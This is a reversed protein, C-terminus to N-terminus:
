KRKRRKGKPSDNRLHAQHLQIRTSLAGSLAHKPDQQRLLALARKLQHICKTIQRRKQSALQKSTPAFYAHTHLRETLLLLKWSPSQLQKSVTNWDHAWQKRQIRITRKTAKDLQRLGHPLGLPEDMDDLYRSYTPALATLLAEAGQTIAKDFSAFQSAERPVKQQLQRFADYSLAPTQLTKTASTLTDSTWKWQQTTALALNLQTLWHLRHQEHPTNEFPRVHMWFLGTPGTPQTTGPAPRVPTPTPLSSRPYWSLALAVLLAIIIGAYLPHPQPFPTSAAIDTDTDTEEPAYVSAVIPPATHSIATKAPTEQTHPIPPTPQEQTPHNAPTHTDNQESPPLLYLLLFSINDNAGAQIAEQLLIDAGWQLTSLAPPQTACRSAIQQIRKAITDHSLVGCLGDTCLLFIDGPQHHHSLGNPFTPVLNQKSLSAEKGLAHALQDRARGIHKLSGQQALSAVRGRLIDSLQAPTPHPNTPQPALLCEADQWGQSTLFAQDEPALSLQRPEFLIYGAQQQTGLINDDQTLPFLQNQRWLYIRSDGIHGLSITQQSLLLLSLTTGALGPGGAFQNIAENTRHFHAHIADHPHSAQSPNLLHASLDQLAIHAAQEGHQTGGMGDAIAFVAPLQGTTPLTEPAPHIRDQNAPRSHQENYGAVLYTQTM